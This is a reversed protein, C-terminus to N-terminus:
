TSGCIQIYTNFSFHHSFNDFGGYYDSCRQRGEQQRHHTEKCVESHTYLVVFYHHIFYCASNHGIICKSFIAHIVFTNIFFFMTIGKYYRYHYQYRNNIVLQPPEYYACASLSCYFHSYGRSDIAKTGMSSHHAACRHPQCRQHSSPNSLFIFFVLISTRKITECPGLLPFDTILSLDLLLGYTLPGLVCEVTICMFLISVPDRLKKNSIFVGLILPGLIITPTVVLLLHGVGIAIVTSTFRSFDLQDVQTLNTTNM